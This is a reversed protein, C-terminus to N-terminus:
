AVAGKLGKGSKFRVAKSAGIKLPAGTRPNRGTRAPRESILFTGFGVLSVTNGDKLKETISDLVQNLMLAAQTKSCEARQAISAVLQTKNTQKKLSKSQKTTSM